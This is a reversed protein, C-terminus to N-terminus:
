KAERLAYWFQDETEAFWNKDRLHEMWVALDYFTRMEWIPVDYITSGGHSYCISQSGDDFTVVKWEHFPVDKFPDSSLLGAEQAIKEEKKM